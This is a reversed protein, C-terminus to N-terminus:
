SKCGTYASEYSNGWCSYLIAALLMWRSMSQDEIREEDICRVANKGVSEMGKKCAAKTSYVQSAVAIKEKNVAFLSFNFAGTPTKKIVFKGM